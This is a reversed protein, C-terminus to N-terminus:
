YGVITYEYLSTYCWTDGLFWNFLVYFAHLFIQFEAVLARLVNLLSKERDKCFNIVVQLACFLHSFHSFNSM